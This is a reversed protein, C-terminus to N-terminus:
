WCFVFIQTSASEYKGKRLSDKTCTMYSWHTHWSTFAFCLSARYLWFMSHAHVWWNSDLLHEPRFGNLLSWLHLKQFCIKVFDKQKIKFIYMAPVMVRREWIECNGITQRSHSHDFAAVCIFLSWIIWILKQNQSVGGPQFYQPRYLCTAQNCTWANLIWSFWFRLSTPFDM